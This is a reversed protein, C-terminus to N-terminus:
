HLIREPTQGATQSVCLSVRNTDNTPVQRGHAPTADRVHHPVRDSPIAPTRISVLGHLGNQPDRRPRGLTETAPIEAGGSNTGAVAAGMITPKNWSTSSPLAGRHGLALAHRDLLDGPLHHGVLVGVHQALRHPQDDLLQHLQLHRLQDAGGVALARRVTGRVAVAVARPLPVRASPRDLELDRLQAAAAVERVAQELPALAALLRQEGDDLLGIHASDRGPPDVLEDLRKPEPDRARLNRTDARQQVLLDLREPLARELAVVGVQPQVALASFTRSPPRTTL